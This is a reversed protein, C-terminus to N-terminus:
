QMSSQQRFKVLIPYIRVYQFHWTLLLWSLTTQKQKAIIRLFVDTITWFWLCFTKGAVLVFLTLRLYKNTWSISWFSFRTAKKESSSNSYIRHQQALSLDVQISFLHQIRLQFVESFAFIKQNSLLQFVPYHSRPFSSSVWTHLEQHPDRHSWEARISFFCVSM